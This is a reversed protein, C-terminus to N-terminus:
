KLQCNKSPNNSLCDVFYEVTFVRFVRNLELISQQNLNDANDYPTHWTDPFKQPILHLIPINRNLFPKHDDDVGSYRYRSSFTKSGGLRNSPQNKLMTEISELRQNLGCTNRFSCMFRLTGYGILDLLVLM